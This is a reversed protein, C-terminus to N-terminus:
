PKPAFRKDFEALARDAWTAADVFNCGGRGSVACWARCWLARREQEHAKAQEAEARAVITGFDDM